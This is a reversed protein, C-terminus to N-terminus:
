ATLRGPEPPSRGLTASVQAFAARALEPPPEGLAIAAPTAAGSAALRTTAAGRLAEVDAADRPSLVCLGWAHVRHALEAHRQEDPAIAGLVRAVTPTPAHMAQYSAIVAAYTENACGEVANEVLVDRLPRDEFRVAEVLGADSTGGGAAVFLAAHRREDTAAARADAVLEAPAGHRELEAALRDFAIAAAAEHRAARAYYAAECDEPPDDVFGEFARGRVPYHCTTTDRAALYTQNTLVNRSESTEGEPLVRSAGLAVAMGWRGNGCVGREDYTAVEFGGDVERVAVGSPDSGPACAFGVEKMKACTALKRGDELAARFAAKEPTDVPGVWQFFNAETIVALTRSKRVVAARSFTGDNLQSWEAPSEVGDWMLKDGVVDVFGLLELGSLAADYPGISSFGAAYGEPTSDDHAPPKKWGTNSPASSTPTVSAVPPTVDVTGASSGVPPITGDVTETTAACATALAAAIGAGFIASLEETRRRRM